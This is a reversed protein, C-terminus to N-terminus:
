GRRGRIAEVFKKDVQSHDSQPLQCPSKSIPYVRYKPCANDRGDAPKHAELITLGKPIDNMVNQLNKEVFQQVSLKVVYIDHLVSKRNVREELPAKITQTHKFWPRTENYFYLKLPEDTMNMFQIEYTHPIMPSLPAPKMRNSIIDFLYKRSVTKRNQFRYLEYHQKIYKIMVKDDSTMGHNQLNVEKSDTSYLTQVVDFPGEDQVSSENNNQNENGSNLSFETDIKALADDEEYRYYELKRVYVNQPLSKLLDKVLLPSQNAVNNANEYVKNNVRIAMVSVPTKPGSLITPAPLRDEYESHIQFYNKQKKKENLFYVIAKLVKNFESTRVELTLINKAVKRCFVYHLVIAGVAVAPYLILSARMSMYHKQLYYFIDKWVGELFFELVTKFNRPVFRNSFFNIKDAWFNKLHKECLFFIRDFLDEKTKLNEEIRRGMTTDIIRAMWMPFVVNGCVTGIPNNKFEVAFIALYLMDDFFRSLLDAPLIGKLFSLLTTFNMGSFKLNGGFNYNNLVRIFQLGTLYTLMKKGPSFENALERNFTPIENQHAIGKLISQEIVKEYAIHILYFGKKQQKELTDM